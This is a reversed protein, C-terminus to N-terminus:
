FSQHKGSWTYNLGLSFRFYRSLGELESDRYMYYNLAPTLKLDKYLAFLMRFDLDFRSISGADNVLHEASLHADMEPWGGKAKRKFFAEGVVGIQPDKDIHSYNRGAFGFRIRPWLNASWDIGLALSQEFRRPLTAGDSDTGPEFETTIDFSTYPHGGGLVTKRNLVASTELWIVDDTERKEAGELDLVGYRAWLLNEWSWTPKEREVIGRVEGLLATSDKARARSDSVDDYDSDRSTTVSNFGLSVRDLGWHWLPRKTLDIFDRSGSELRPFVVDERLEALGGSEKPLWVGNMAGLVAYDDGGGALFNNTAVSYLDGGRVPRGNVRVDSVTADPTGEKAIDFTLGAFVLSGMRYEGNPYVRRVSDAALSKLQDGTLRGAVVLQDFALLRVVAEHTLRDTGFIEASVPRLAGRNLVAVEAKAREQLASMVYTKLEDASTPAGEPFPTSLEKDFSARSEALMSNLGANTEISSDARVVKIDAGVIKWGLEDHAADLDLRAATWPPNDDQDRGAVVISRDGDLSRMVADVGLDPDIIVDLGGPSSLLGLTMARDAVETGHGRSHIVGIRLRDPPSREEPPVLATADVVGISALDDIFRPNMLSVFELVLGDDISIEARDALSTSGQASDTAFPRLVPFSAGDALAALRPLGVAFDIPAPAFVACNMSALVKMMAAGDDFRSEAYPLITRGADIVVVTRGERRAEDAVKDVTAALAAITTEGNGFLMGSTASTVVLTLRAERHSGEDEAGVGAVGAMVAILVFLLSKIGASVPPAYCRSLPNGSRNSTKCRLQRQWTLRNLRIRCLATPVTQGPALQVLEEHVSGRKDEIPETGRVCKWVEQRFSTRFAMTSMVLGKENM